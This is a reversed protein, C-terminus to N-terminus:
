APCGAPWCRSATMASCQSREHWSPRRPASRLSVGERCIVKGAHCCDLCVVVAQAEVREIWRALDGMAVGQTLADDPDADHPLLFGEEKQGVKEVVGHGAFYFLGVGGPRLRRRFAAIAEEMQQRTANLRLTVDFGLQQLTAAMDTADNVPNQLPGIEAEYAGNGIVLAWRNQVVPM